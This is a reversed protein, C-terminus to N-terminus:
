ALWTEIDRQFQNIAEDTKPHYVLETLVKTSVTVIDAGNEWCKRVDDATRISGCIVNSTSQLRSFRNLELNADIGGDLMRNYFFSVVQAGAAQAIVAQNATMCATANVGIGSGVLTTIVGLTDLCFPIKVYLDVNEIESLNDQLMFAEEIMKAPDLSTVEVSLHKVGVANKSIVDCIEHLRTIYGGKKEKSMLSPNTTVGAIAKTRVFRGINDINATDLFLKKM